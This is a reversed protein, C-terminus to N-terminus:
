SDEAQAKASSRRPSALVAHLSEVAAREEDTLKTPVSVDVTVILDGTSKPTEIGKGKVRHRSGSQTGAKLRLSVEGGDLTPVSIDAGLVAETFTVPVRTLLNLGERTFHPHPAVNCEVLLDGAPGGNRGPSGRGKLRIRQGNDVGAPIRVNVERPRREIGTGRCTSCPYEIIKGNGACSRCPTSLSFFGQNDATSGRGGCASCVKPATGPKAGSGSCSSCQADATLHLTTTIGHAADVFDLTLTTAIDQGRQPGTANGGRRGGGGRGFMQGFIDGLGEGGMDFTVNQGGRGGGGFGGSMPGLRRVEDYEVRKTADGVVEYAASIDKFKEEAKANDPNADPHYQRALRRYAKTIEKDTADKSVGLVAYYDKEYWERQAAM